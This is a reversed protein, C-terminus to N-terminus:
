DKNTVETLDIAVALLHQLRVDVPLTVALAPILLRVPPRRPLEPTVQALDLGGILSPEFVVFPALFMQLLHYVRATVSSVFSPQPLTCASEM